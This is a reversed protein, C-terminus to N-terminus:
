RRVKRCKSIIPAMLFSGFCIVSRSNSCKSRDRSLSVLIAQAAMGASLATATARM